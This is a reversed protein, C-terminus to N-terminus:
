SSKELERRLKRILDTRGINDPRSELEAIEKEIQHRRAVEEWQRRDLFSHHESRLAELLELWARPDRRPPVRIKYGI